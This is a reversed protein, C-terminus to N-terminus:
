IAPPELGKSVLYKNAEDIGRDWLVTRIYKLAQHRRDYESLHIMARGPLMRSIRDPIERLLTVGVVFDATIKREPNYPRDHLTRETTLLKTAVSKRRM